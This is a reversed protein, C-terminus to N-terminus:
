TVHPIGEFVLTFVKDRQHEISLDDNMLRANYDGDPTNIVLDLGAGNTYLDLVETILDDPCAKTAFTYTLQYRLQKRYTRVAGDQMIHTVLGADLQQSDGWLPSPLVVSATPSTITFSM